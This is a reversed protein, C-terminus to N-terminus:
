RRRRVIAVALALAAVYALAPAPSDESEAAAADPALPSSPGGAQREGGRQFEQLQRDDFSLIGSTGAQTAGGTGAETVTFSARTSTHYSHQWNRAGIEVAYTGPALDDRQYDWVWTVNIPDYHGSHAVSVDLFRDIAGPGPTIRSGGPATVNLTISDLDVDYSGWPTNLVALIVLKEHVFRPFVLEVDLPNRVPLVINNAYDEGSNLNYTFQPLTYKNGNEHENAWWFEVIIDHQRPIVGGAAVFEESWEMEMFHENVTGDAGPLPVTEDMSWAEQPGWKGHAVMAVDEARDAVKSMDPPDSPNGHHEGELQAHWIWAEVTWAPQYGPDWNWCIGTACAAVPYGHLDSSTYLTATPSKSPDLHIDKTQGRENHLKTYDGGFANSSKISIFGPTTFWYMRWGCQEGPNGDQLFQPVNCNANSGISYDEEGWPFQTNMPMPGNTGPAPGWVRGYFTIPTGEREAVDPANTVEQAITLGLPALGVLLLGGLVHARQM